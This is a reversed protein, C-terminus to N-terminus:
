ITSAGFGCLAVLAETHGAVCAPFADESVVKAGRAHLLEIIPAHGGFAAAKIATWGDITKLNPNAKAFLLQEVCGLHGQSAAAILPTFGLEDPEDIAPADSRLLTELEGERGHAAAVILPRPREPVCSGVRTKRERRAARSSWLCPPPAEEALTWRGRMTGHSPSIPYSVLSSVFGRADVLDM